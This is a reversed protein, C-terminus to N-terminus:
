LMDYSNIFTTLTYSMVVCDVKEALKFNEDFIDEVILEFKDLIGKKDLEKRAAEIM